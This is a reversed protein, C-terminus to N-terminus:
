RCYPRGPHPQRTWARRRDLFDIVDQHMPGAKARAEEHTTLKPRSGKRRPKATAPAAGLAALRDRQWPYIPDLETCGAAIDDAACFFRIHLHDDHPFGPQCTVEAFRAVIAAPAGARAAEALLLTRVHEVVFIRQVDDGAAELLAQVFAWTRPLDIKVPRDDAPDQLDGYETGEGAPDLPIAKAPFPAGDADLLFFLVDVDRGAQHSGHGTLPGGEAFGIEGITAPAGPHLRDVAAAARVLAQVLEVTGYRALDRKGPQFRFGPGRPPPAVGGRLEGDAPSGTSTTVAPALALLDRLAQREAVVEPHIALEQVGGA